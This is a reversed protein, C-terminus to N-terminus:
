AASRRSTPKLSKNDRRGCAAVDAALDQLFSDFPDIHNMGEYTRAHARPFARQYEALHSFPVIDDATGHYFTLSHPQLSEIDGDTLKFPEHQWDSDAGCWFPAAAIFVVQQDPMERAVHQLIVSGGLSHGVLCVKGEVADVALAVAQLWADVEPAEPNPMEPLLVNWTSGLSEQLVPVWKELLNPRSYRSAGHVLLLTSNVTSM